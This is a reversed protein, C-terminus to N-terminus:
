TKVNLAAAARTWYAQREDTMTTGVCQMYKAYGESPSKLLADQADKCYRVFFWAGSAWTYEDTTVIDRIANRQEPSLGDVSTATTIKRVADPQVELAYALNYQAMQMNRTGQGPTGPFHNINYKFDGSEFAILSLVAAIAAPDYISYAQFAQPLFGAAQAATRCEDPVPAGDCSKSNPAIAELIATASLADARKTDTPIPSPLAVGTATLCLITLAKIIITYM